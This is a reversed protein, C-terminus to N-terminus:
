VESMKGEMGDKKRCAIEIIANRYGKDETVLCLIHDFKGGECVITKSKKKDLQKIEGTRIVKKIRRNDSNDM